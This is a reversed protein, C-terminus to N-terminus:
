IAGTGYVNVFPYNNNNFYAGSEDPTGTGGLSLSPNTFTADDSYVCYKTQGFNSNQQFSAFAFNMSSFNSVVGGIALKANYIKSFVSNSGPAWVNSAGSGAWSEPPDYLGNTGYNQQQNWMMSGSTDLFILINANNTILTGQAFATNFIMATMYVSTLIAFIFIRYIFGKLFLMVNNKFVKLM